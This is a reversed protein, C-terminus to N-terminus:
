QFPHRLARLVRRYLTRPRNGAGETKEISRSFNGSSSNTRTWMTPTLGEFTQGDRGSYSQASNSM